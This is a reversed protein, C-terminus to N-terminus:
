SAIGLRKDEKKLKKIEKAHLKVKKRIAELEKIGAEKKRKDGSDIKRGALLLRRTTGKSVLNHGEAYKVATELGRWRWSSIVQGLEKSSLVIVIISVTIQVILLLIGLPGATIVVSSIAASWGMAKAALLLKGIVFAGNVVTAGRSIGAILLDKNYWKQKKPVDEYNNKFFYNELRKDILDSNGSLLANGLTEDLLIKDERIKISEVAEFMLDYKDIEFFKADELLVEELIDEM